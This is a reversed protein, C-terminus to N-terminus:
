TERTPGDQSLSTDNVILRTMLAVSAFVAAIVFNVHVTRVSPRAAPTPYQRTFALFSAPIISASAFAFRGWFDLNAGGQFSAVGLAWLAVFLTFMAFSRNIASDPRAHWVLFALALVASAVIYLSFQSM